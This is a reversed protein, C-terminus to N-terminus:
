LAVPYDHRFVASNPDWGVAKACNRPAQLVAGGTLAYAGQRMQRGPQDAFLGLPVIRAASEGECHAFGSM